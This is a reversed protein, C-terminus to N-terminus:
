FKKEAFWEEAFEVTGKDFDVRAKVGYPMICHPFAHGFNLNFLVRKDALEERVVSMYEHMFAEDQPKGFLVGEVGDFFKHEKLTTLAERFKEPKMKEESTELFVIKGKNSKPLLHYKAYIEKEDDFEPKLMNCIVDLCGGFLQGEGKGGACLSVFGLDEWHKERPTGLAAPSFDSREEYWVESAKLEVNKQNLFLNLFWFKSYPLMDEDLEAIDNLFSQGYFTDLGLSNLALHHVTSDSYGVFVKPNDVVLKAFEKDEFIHPLVKYGDRGGIACIVGKITKDAFAAKLDAFRAEPHESLYKMGKLANPMLVPVLELEELRKLGLDLEHKAFKEGLAGSSLSVIAVKDGIDLSHPKM